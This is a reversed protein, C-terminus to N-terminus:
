KVKATSVPSWEMGEYDVLVGVPVPLTAPEHVQDSMKNPEPTFLPEPTPQPMYMTTPEPEKDTNTEPKVNTTSTAVTATPASNVTTAPTISEEKEYITFPYRNHLLVFEM